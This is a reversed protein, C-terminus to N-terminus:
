FYNKCHQFLDGGIMISIAEVLFEFFNTGALFNFDSYHFAQFAFGAEV